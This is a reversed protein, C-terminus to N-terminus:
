LELMVVMKVECSLTTVQTPNLESLSYLVTVSEIVEILTNQSIFCFPTVLVGGLTVLGVRVHTLGLTSM